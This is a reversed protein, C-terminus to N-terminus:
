LLNSYKLERADSASVGGQPDRPGGWRQGGVVSGGGMFQYRSLEGLNLIIHQYLV